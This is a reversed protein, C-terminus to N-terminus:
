AAKEEVLSLWAPDTWEVGRENGFALMQTILDTMSPKKMGSVRQKNVVVFGAAPNFPNPVIHQGYAAGILLRKWDEKDMPVGQWEPICRTIDAVMAHFRKKQEWSNEDDQIVGAGETFLDLM